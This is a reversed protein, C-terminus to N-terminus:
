IYCQRTLMVVSKISETACEILCEKPGLVLLWGMLFEMLLKTSFLLMSIELKAENNNVMEVM